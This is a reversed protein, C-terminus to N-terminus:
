VVKLFSHSGIPRATFGLTAMTVPKMHWSLLSTATADSRAVRQQVYGLMANLSRLASSTMDPLAAGHTALFDAHPGIATQSAFEFQQIEAALETQSGHRARRNM